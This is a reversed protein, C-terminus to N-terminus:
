KGYKKLSLTIPVRETIGPVNGETTYQWMEFDYYFSPATEYESYWMDYSSLKGLDLREYGMEKDCYFGPTYGAMSIRSCFTNIFGTVQEGNCGAVRSSESMTGDTNLDYKWYICVPYTINYTRIKDLVFTAEEEAETDNVAKSYFYVGVPIKAATAGEINSTFYEDELLRGREYERFGVRIMVYDVGANAVQSWDIEGKQSNVNIGVFSDGGNYSVLGHDNVFDDPKYSCTPIDYYPIVMEGNYLDNVKLEGTEERGLLEVSSERPGRLLIVASGVIIILVLLVTVVSFLARKTSPEM